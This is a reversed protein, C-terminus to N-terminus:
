GRVSSRTCLQRHVTSGTKRWRRGPTRRDRKLRCIEENMRRQAPQLAVSRCKMPTHLELLEGLVVSYWHIMDDVHAPSPHCLQSSEVNSRFQQLDVAETNRYNVKKVPNPNAAKIAINVSNHASM